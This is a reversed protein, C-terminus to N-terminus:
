VYFHSLLAHLPRFLLLCLVFNGTCHFIDFLLGSVWYSFAAAPGGAVLYPLTCLLGFSLGFFGSVISWLLVSTNKHLFMVICAFISWVYLYSFWWIGFGYLLGELFVFSYIVFFVKRRLFLTYSLILLSVIEINPLFSLVVQGMFLLATLIGMRALERSKSKEM